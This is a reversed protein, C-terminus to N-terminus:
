WDKLQRDRHKENKNAPLLSEDSKQSDLLNKAEQPSMQGPPTQDEKQKDKDAQDEKDRNLSNSFLDKLM